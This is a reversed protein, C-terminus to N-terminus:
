KILVIKNSFTKEGVKLVAFYVGSNVARRNSDKGDWVKEVIGPSYTKNILTTILQGEINFIQLKVKNKKLISFRLKTSPNFPNPYANFIFMGNLTQNNPKGKIATLDEVTLYYFVPANSNESNHAIFIKRGSKWLDNGTITKVFKCSIGTTPWSREQIIDKNIQSLSIKIDTVNLISLDRLGSTYLISYDKKVEDWWIALETERTIPANLISTFNSRVGNTDILCVASNNHVKAVVIFKSFKELWAVSYYYQDINSIYFKSDTKTIIEGGSKIVSGYFQEGDGWGVFAFNSDNSTEVAWWQDKERPSLEITEIIDGTKDNLIRLKNMSTQAPPAEDAYSVLFKGHLHVVKPSHQSESGGAIIWNKKIITGDPKHMQGRIDVTTGSGDEWVSLVTNDTPNISVDVPEQAEDNGTGIYRNPNTDFTIEGDSNFSIIQNYIDHQWGDDSGSSSAWSVYYKQNGSEIFSNVNMSHSKERPDQAFLTISMFFLILIFYWRKIILM